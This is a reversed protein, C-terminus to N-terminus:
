YFLLPSDFYIGPVNPLSFTGLGLGSAAGNIHLTPCLIGPDM